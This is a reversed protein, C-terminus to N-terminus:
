GLNSQRRVWACNLYSGAPVAGAEGCGSPQLARNADLSPPAPLPQPHKLTSASGDLELEVLNSYGHDAVLAAVHEIGNDYLDLATCWHLATVSHCSSACPHTHTHTPPPHPPHPPHPPPGELRAHGDTSDARQIIQDIRRQKKPTLRGRERDEKNRFVERAASHHIAAATLAFLSLACTTFKRM